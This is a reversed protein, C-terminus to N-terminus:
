EPDGPHSKRKAREEVVTNKSRRLLLLKKQESRCSCNTEVMGELHYHTQRGGGQGGINFSKNRLTM